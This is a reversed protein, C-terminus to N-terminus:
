AGLWGAFGCQEHLMAVSLFKHTMLPRVVLVPHIVILADAGSDFCFNLLLCSM